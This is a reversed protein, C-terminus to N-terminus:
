HPSLTLRVELATVINVLALSSCSPYKLCCVTRACVHRAPSKVSEEADEVSGEKKKLENFVLSLCISLLDGTLFIRILTLMPFFYICCIYMQMESINYGSGVMLFSTRM